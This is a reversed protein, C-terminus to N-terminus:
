GYVVIDRIRPVEDYKTVEFRINEAFCNKLEIIRKHGICQGLAIEQEDALVRYGYINHGRSIEERIVLYKKEQGKPLPITVETGTINEVGALKNEFCQKILKGAQEFQAEDEFSGDDAITMGLLLNANRGVSHLYFDRLTEPSFILNSEGPAWFWGLGSAQPKRNPVDTEAPHWYAGNPNGEGCAALAEESEDDTTAGGRLTTSWCNEAAYGAENGVWRIVNPMEAPGQFLIANPQLEKLMPIIVPGNEEPPIVGSDFWIEFLEGYNEWLERLQREVVGVYNKYKETKREEPGPHQIGYYDNCNLHYYLAPKIDYKKCSAIFDAVIDGKGDKWAWSAVSYDNVKTPHNTFGTGHKDVLVAYNAGLAKASRIWQDTDLNKPNFTARKGLDFDQGILCHIIVGIEADAWELQQKTPVAKRNTEM